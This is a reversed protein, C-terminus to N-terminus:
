AMRNDKWDFGAGSEKGVLYTIVLLCIQGYILLPYLLEYVWTVFSTGVNGKHYFLKTM